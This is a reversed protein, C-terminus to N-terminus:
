DLRAAGGWAPASDAMEEPGDEDPQEVAFRGSSVDRLLRLGDEYEQRRPETLLVDAMRGVALRSCLRWRALGVATGHLQDPLTGAPGLRNPAHAAVYGRVEATVQALVEALPDAQGVEVSQQRVAALEQATLRSLIGATTLANWPM